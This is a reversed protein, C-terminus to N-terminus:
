DSDGWRWRWGGRTRRHVITVFAVTSLAMLTLLGAIARYDEISPALLAIGVILTVFALLLVWGQWAIPLGAGYGYRKPPFWDGPEFFKHLM